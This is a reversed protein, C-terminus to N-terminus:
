EGGGFRFSYLDADRMTFTLRVAKGALASVDAGGSWRVQREIEDGVITRCDAESFGEIPSGDPNEIGVTIRGAASTSYNLFLGSGEFSLPRTRMTGEPIGARLSALGDLRLTMRELYKGDQANHREIYFSMESEGTQVLGCAPYNCRSTWNRRDLGPRVFAQMFTRDYRNGGRSTMLVADSCDQWYGVGRKREKHVGMAEGEEDALVKKEPFFRGPLACYIHPARFYPQTQNTYLHEPLTGGMDMEVPDSWHLFDESTSRAISRVGGRFGATHSIDEGIRGAIRFYCV